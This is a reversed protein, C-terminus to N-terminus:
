EKTKIYNIVEQDELPSSFYVGQFYQCGFSKLALYSEESIVGTATVPIDIETLLDIISSSLIRYHSGEKLDSTFHSDLKVLSIPFLPINNLSSYCRGFNDLAMTIELEAFAEIVPRSANIDTLLSEEPIDVVINKSNINLAAVLESFDKVIDASELQASSLNITMKLNPNIKNIDSLMTLAKRICIVGIEYMANAREAIILFNSPAVQGYIPSNWRLFAEFGTLKNDKDFQPQYVMNIEDGKIANEITDILEQKSLKYLPSNYVRIVNSPAEFHVVGVNTRIAERVAREAEHLLDGSFRSTEPFVSYGAYYKLKANGAENMVSDEAAMILADIYSDFVSQSMERNTVVVFELRSIRGVLDDPHACERIRHAICQIFLDTSRHGLNNLFNTSDLATMYIIRVESTKESAISENVLKDIHAFIRERGPLTTLSDLHSAKSNGITESVAKADKISEHKTILNQRMMSSEILSTTESNIRRTQENDLKERLKIINDSVRRMFLQFLLIIIISLATVALLYYSNIDKLVVVKYMYVIIQLINLALSLLFGTMGLTVNFIFSFLVLFVSILLQISLVPFFGQMGVGAIFALTLLISTILFANKSKFYIKNTFYDMTTNDRSFKVFCHVSIIFKILM